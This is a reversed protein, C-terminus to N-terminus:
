FGCKPAVLCASNRAKLNKCRNLKLDGNETLHRHLVRYNTGSTSTTYWRRLAMRLM